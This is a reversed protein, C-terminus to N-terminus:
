STLKKTKLKSILRNWFGVKQKQLEEVRNLTIQLKKSLDQIINNSKQLKGKLNENEIKIQNINEKIIELIGSNVITNYTNVAEKYKQEDEKKLRNIEEQITAIEQQHMEMLEPFSNEINQELQFMNDYIKIAINKDYYVEKEVSESLYKTNILMLEETDLKLKYIEYEKKPEKEWINSDTNEARTESYKDICIKRVANEKQKKDIEKLQKISDVNNQQESIIIQKAIQKNYYEGNQTEVIQNNIINYKNKLIDNAKITRM